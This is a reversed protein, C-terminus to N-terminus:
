TWSKEKKQTINGMRTIKHKLWMKKHHCLPSQKKKGEGIPSEGRKKKPNEGEKKGLLL